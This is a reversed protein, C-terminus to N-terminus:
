LRSGDGCQALEDIFASHTSVWAAQEISDVASTLKRVPGNTQFYGNWYQVAAQLKYLRWADPFAQREAATLPFVQAYADMFSRMSEFDYVRDRYRYKGLASVLDNVRWDLRSVEFDVPVARGRHYLLNHLGYDGHIVVRPLGAHALRSELSEIDQVLRDVRDELEAALVAAAPEPLSRSKERLEDVKSAHWAADRVRPATLSAFGLHHSEHPEFSRLTGHLEALTRGALRTLALRQPRLLYNLSYNTGPVFDFVAFIRDDICTVTSGNGARVLRVAPFELEELRALISHGYRVTAPLWDPRYQKVVKVGSTTAVAANLSRRSLRLNRPAQVPELGFRRLVERVTLVDIVTPSLRATVYASVRSPRPVRIVPPAISM